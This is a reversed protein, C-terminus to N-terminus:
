AEFSNRKAKRRALFVGLMLGLSQVLAGGVFIVAPSLDGEESPMPAFLNVLFYLLGSVPVCVAYPLWGARMFTGLAYGCAIAILWYIL